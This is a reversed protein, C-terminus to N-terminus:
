GQEMEFDLTPPTSAISPGAPSSPTNQPHETGVRRVIVRNGVASIVKVAAGAAIIMGESQCQVRQGDLVMIGAPNMMTVASGIKGVLRANRDDQETFSAIEEPRPEQLIARRGIPTHPWVSFAVAVVIPVLVLASATFSWFYAPHNTWWAQWAFFCAGLFAGIACVVIMGGSPIFVEAVFLAIAVVMLLLAAYGPHM